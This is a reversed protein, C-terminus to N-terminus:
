GEVEEVVVELLEGRKAIEYGFQIAAIIDHGDILDRGIIADEPCDQALDKVHWEQDTKGEGDIATLKHRTQYDSTTKVILKLKM